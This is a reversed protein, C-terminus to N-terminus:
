ADRHLADRAALVAECIRHAVRMTHPMRMMNMGLAIGINAHPYLRLETTFGAGGGEHNLFAHEATRGFKWGLGIGERSVIGAAGRAVLTQMRRTSAEGLIGGGGALQAQLLKGLEPMSGVLGGIAATRLEYERLEILSGIREGQLRAPLGPFMLRLVLRMPDWRGIYGTSARQRLADTFRFGAQMGLPELVARTVQERYELGSVRSIVEGLIAYGANCYEVRTGPARALRLRYRALAQASTDPEDEPFSVALFGAMTDKLGSRHSLLQLLTVDRLAAHEPLFRGLRDELDLQGREALQLVAVATFLKTGSFLHYVTDTTAPRRSRLDALGFAGAWRLGTADMVAISCGPVHARSLERQVLDTLSSPTTTPM